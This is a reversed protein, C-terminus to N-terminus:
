MGGALRRQSPEDEEQEDMRMMSIFMKKIKPYTKKKRFIKKMM